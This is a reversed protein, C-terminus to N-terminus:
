ESWVALENGGPETFHFRSGGPFSFIERDITGGADMVRALTGELDKSYLVVLVSGKETRASIGSKFFGGDMGANTFSTYDPGYDQFSWGFANAFFTKTANIDQTPLEIYNIKHHNDMTDTLLLHV